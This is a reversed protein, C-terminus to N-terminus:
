ENRLKRPRLITDGPLLASRSPFFFHKALVDVHEISMRDELPSREKKHRLMADHSEM